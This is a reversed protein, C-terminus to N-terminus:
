AASRPQVEMLYSTLRGGIINPWVSLRASDASSAALAARAPGFHNNVIPAGDPVIQTATQRSGSSSVITRVM